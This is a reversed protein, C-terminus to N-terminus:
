RNSLTYGLASGPAPTWTDPVQHWSCLPRIIRQQHARKGTNLPVRGIGPIYHHCAATLIEIAVQTKHELLPALRGSAM